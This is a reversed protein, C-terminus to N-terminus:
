ETQISFGARNTLVDQQYFIWEAQFDTKIFPGSKNYFIRGIQRFKRSTSSSNNREFTQEVQLFNDKIKKGQNKKNKNKLDM